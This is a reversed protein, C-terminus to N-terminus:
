IKIMPAYEMKEPICNKFTEGSRSNLDIIRGTGTDSDKTIIVGHETSDDLYIM